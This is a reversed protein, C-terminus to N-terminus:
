VDNGESSMQKGCRMYLRYNYVRMRKLNHNHCKGDFHTVVILHDLVRKAKTTERGWVVLVMEVLSAIM